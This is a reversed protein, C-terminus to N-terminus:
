QKVPLVIRYIVKASDANAAPNQGDVDVFQSGPTDVDAVLVARGLAPMRSLDCNSQYRNPLQAFALGGVADYFMMVNLIEATSARDAAFVSADGRNGAAGGFSDQTVITRLNRPSESQTIGVTAGAAITGLRYGWERYFLRVNRLRQGTRNEISGSVVGDADALEAVVPPEIPATWRAILSKTGNTLIPVGVLAAYEEAYEYGSGVMALNLGGSQTGGIGAGPLPWSHVQAAAVEHLPTVPAVDL